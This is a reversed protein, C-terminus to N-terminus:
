ALRKDKGRDSCQRYHHGFDPTWWMRQRQLHYTHAALVARTTTAQKRTKGKRQWKETRKGTRKEKGKDKGRGSRAKLQGRGTGTGAEAGGIVGEEQGAASASLSAKMDSERAGRGLKSPASSLM